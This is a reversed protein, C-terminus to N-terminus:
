TVWLSVNNKTKKFQIIPATKHPKNRYWRIVLFLINYVRVITKPGNSFIRYEISGVVFLKCLLLDPETTLRKRFNFFHKKVTKAFIYFNLWISYDDRREVELSIKKQVTTSRSLLLARRAVVNQLM